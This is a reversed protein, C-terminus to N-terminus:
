LTENLYEQSGDLRDDRSGNDEPVFESELREEVEVDVEGGGGGLSASGGVGVEARSMKKKEMMESSAPAEEGTLGGGGGGQVDAGDEHGARSRPLSLSLSTDLPGTANALSGPAPTDVIAMDRLLEADMEDDDDEDM